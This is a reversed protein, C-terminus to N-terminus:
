APLPASFMFSFVLTPDRGLLPANSFFPEAEQTRTETIGESWPCEGVYLVILNIIFFVPTLMVNIFRKDHQQM